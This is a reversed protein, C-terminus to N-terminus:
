GNDPGLNITPLVLSFSVAEADPAMAIPGPAGGWTEEISIEDGSRDIERSVDPYFFHSLGTSSTRVFAVTITDSKLNFQNAQQTGKPM